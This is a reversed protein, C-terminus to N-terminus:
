NSFLNPYDTIIGDVGLKKLKEINIVDNVTWPIVKMNRQKCKTILDATVLSYAPSYVEPTYGLAHLQEEFSRKDFDEILMATKYNSYEIQLYQLTRFDFSQLIVRDKIGKINIVKIVLDVFEKPAPHYINDGQPQSKIEINYNVKKLKKIILYEEVEQILTSLLPKVVKIKQQQLFRPHPKLGVDFTKVEDYNMKYINFQHEEAFQVFEGNPKTSIENGFWPEHSVVVQNDKTIVVDLEITTVGLDIAKLMAPITNEPMLGRCGRHGQIDLIKLNQHTIKNQSTCALLFLFCYLLKKM